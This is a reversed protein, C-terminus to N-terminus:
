TPALSPGAGGEGQEPRSFHRDLLDTTYIMGTPRCDTYSIYIVQRGATATHSAAPSVLIVTSEYYMCNSLQHASPLPCAWSPQLLYSDTCTPLASELPKCTAAHMCNIEADRTDHKSSSILPDCSCTHLDACQENKKSLIGITWQLRYISSSFIFIKWM